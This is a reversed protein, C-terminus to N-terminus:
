VYICFVVFPNLISAQPVGVAIVALEPENNTAIVRMMQLIWIKQSLFLICVHLNENEIFYM